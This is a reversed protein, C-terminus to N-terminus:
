SHWVVQNRGLEKALYLASDANSIFQAITCEDLAPSVSNAGVSVTINVSEGGSVQVDVFEVAKCINEGVVKCEDANQLLVVFAGYAWRAAFDGKDLNVNDSIIKAVQLLAADGYDYGYITNLSRLKDVDVMLVGLRGNESLARQWEERLYKDFCRRDPLKTVADMMSMENIVRIQEAIGLMVNIRLKVITPNYPKSVYDDAGLRLGKEEDCEQDLATVFIVPITKTEAISRLVSLVEYGDMQPMIIDLLIIDPRVAKAVQIAENGGSAAHVIYEDRLIQVLHGQSVRSDDVVLVTRKTDKTKM